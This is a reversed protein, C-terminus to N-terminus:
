RSIELWAIELWRATTAALLGSRLRGWPTAILYQNDLWVVLGLPGPPAPAALITEDDVRFLARRREWVIEYTHWTTRDVTLVAEAIGLARQYLPWLRRYLGPLNLLLLAALGTPALALAAPRRADLVAAKWGRGPVGIALPMDSPPSAYFFWLAQPLAPRRDWHRTFPENWFGFGATGPPDPESFRARVALILPPRWPFRHRPLGRYDDIQANTYVRSTTAANVLRLVGGVPEVRGGGTEVRRWPPPLDHNFEFRM